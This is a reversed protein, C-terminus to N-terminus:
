VSLFGYLLYRSWAKRCGCVGRCLYHASPNLGSHLGPERQWLLPSLAGCGSHQDLEAHPQPGRTTAPICSIATSQLEM